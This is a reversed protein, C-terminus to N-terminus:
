ILLLSHRKIPEGDCFPNNPLVAEIFDLSPTDSKAHVLLCSHVSNFKVLGDLSGDEWEKRVNM